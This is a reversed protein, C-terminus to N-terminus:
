LGRELSPRDPSPPCDATSDSTRALSLSHRLSALATAENNSTPRPLPANCISCRSIESTDDALTKSAASLVAKCTSPFGGFQLASVFESTLRQISNVGPGRFLTQQVTLTPEIVPSLGSFHLFYAVENALFDYMPRLFTVDGYRSDSFALQTAVSGGRGLAISSLCDAALHTANDGVLVYKHELLRAALVLQRYRSWRSADEAATLASNSIPARHSERDMLQPLLQSFQNSTDLLEDSRYIKYAFGSQKLLEEQKSPFPKNYDYICVVTPRFRLKRREANALCLKTLELLASSSVGGSFALVVPEGSRVANNKGFASRFKHVCGALFCSRCLPPDDKRVKVAAPGNEGKCKICVGSRYSSSLATVLSVLYLTFSQSLMM